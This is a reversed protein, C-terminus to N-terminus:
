EEKKHTWYGHELPDEDKKKKKTKTNRQREKKLKAKLRKIEKRQREVTEILKEQEESFGGVSDGDDETFGCYIADETEEYIIEELGIVEGTWGNESAETKQANLYNKRKEWAKIGNPEELKIYVYEDAEKIVYQSSHIGIDKMFSQIDM